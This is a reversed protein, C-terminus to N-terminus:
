SSTICIFNMIIKFLKNILACFDRPSVNISREYPIIIIIIMMM